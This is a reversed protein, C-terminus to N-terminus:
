VVSDCLSSVSLVSFSPLLLWGVAAPRSPYCEWCSGRLPAWGPTFTQAGSLFSVEFVLGLSGGGRTWSGRRSNEQQEVPSRQLADWCDGCWSDPENCVESGGCKRLLHKETEERVSTGPANRSTHISIRSLCIFAVGFVPEGDVVGRVEDERGEDGVRSATFLLVGAALDSM